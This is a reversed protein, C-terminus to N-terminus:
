MDQKAQSKNALYGSCQMQLYIEGDRFQLSGVPSSELLIDILNASAELVNPLREWCNIKRIAGLLMQWELVLLSGFHGTFVFVSQSTEMGEFRAMVKLSLDLSRCSFRVLQSWFVEQCHTATEVNGAIYNATCQCADTQWWLMKKYLRIMHCCSVERMFLNLQENRQSRKVAGSRVDKM